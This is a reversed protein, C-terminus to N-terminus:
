DFVIIEGRNVADDSGIIFNSQKPLIKYTLSKHSVNADIFDIIEKYSLMNSDLIIEDNIKTGSLDSALVTEKSLVQELKKDMKNSVFVYRSVDKQKKSVTKKFVFALRIGLWVMMDFIVHRKFHKRYFIQMAGFFRKAYQKDKLTSEGKFHIVTADAYYYNDCGSKLVRYSLDIDEGYMFYDEDFGGISNYLKRKLFMFAGVLVAVKGTENEKLHSAYYRKSNGILKFLSAKIYPINRKSEPLFNGSGNILRCGIIGLKEKDAAFKLLKIFTDEAVVTDPNLICIYDGKALAVGLNNGKSFGSNEKNEILKVDPFLQKVMACSDDTSHNDVVIIEADLTAVAQQVSKLCLELFYRV